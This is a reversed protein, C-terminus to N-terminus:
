SRKKEEEEEKEKELTEQLYHRIDDSTIPRPPIPAPGLTNEVLKKNEIEELLRKSKDELEAEQALEVASKVIENKKEEKEKEKSNDDDSDDENEGGDGDDDDGERQLFSSDGGGGFM